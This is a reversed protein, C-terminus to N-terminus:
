AAKRRRTVVGLGLLALGVISLTTPEPVVLFLEVGAGTATAVFSSTLSAGTITQTNGGFNELTFFPSPLVFYTAGFPTLSFNLISDFDGNALGGFVHAEGTVLTLNAIATDDVNNAVTVANAGNFGLVTDSSRDIFLTLSANAFTALIGTAGFPDAEGTITFVGYIKYGNPELANLQSSVANGAGMEFSAKNLFGNETFPDDAGALSGGVITQIIRAQYGFTLRDAIVLNAITGAGVVGEQANFIPEASAAGTALAGAVACSALLAKSFQRCTNM